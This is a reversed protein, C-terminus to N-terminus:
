PRVGDKEVPIHIPATEWDLRKARHGYGVEFRVSGMMEVPISLPNHRPRDTM